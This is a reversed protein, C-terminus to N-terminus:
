AGSGPDHAVLLRGRGGGGHLGLDGLSLSSVDPLLHGGGGGLMVQVSQEIHGVEAHFIWELLLM